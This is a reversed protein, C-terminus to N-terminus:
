KTDQVPMGNKDIFREKNYGFFLGGAIRGFVNMKTLWNIEYAPRPRKKTAVGRICPVMWETVVDV